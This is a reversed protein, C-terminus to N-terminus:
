DCDPRRRQRDEQNDEHDRREHTGDDLPDQHAVECPRAVPVDSTTVMPSITISMPSAWPIQGGATWVTGLTRRRCATEAQGANENRRMLHDGDGDGAADAPKKQYRSFRVRMPTAMRATTSSRLRAASFPAEGARTLMIDHAIPADSAATAPIRIAGTRM